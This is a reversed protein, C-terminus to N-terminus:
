FSHKNFFLELQKLTESENPSDHGGEFSVLESNPAVINIEIANEFAAVDDAKGHLVLLPKKFSGIHGITNFRDIVLSQPILAKKAILRAFTAFGSKLILLDLPRKKALRAVSNSGLSNGYAAIKDIDSRSKLWDFAKCFGETITAESPKGISRGYGPYEVLLVHYGLSQITRAFELNNDIYGTNGHAFILTSRKQEDALLWSEIKGGDVEFWKKEVSAQSEATAEKNDIFGKGALPFIEPKQLLEAGKLRYYAVHFAFLSLASLLCWFIVNM